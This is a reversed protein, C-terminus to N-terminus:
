TARRRLARWDRRLEGDDLRLALLAIALGVVFCTPQLIHVPGITTVEVVEFIALAIGSTAALLIAEERQALLALLALLATGGVLIGLALAPILYDSFASGELDKLPMFPVVFIAGAISSLATLGELGILTKRLTTRAM